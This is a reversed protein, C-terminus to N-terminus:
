SGSPLGSDWTNTTPDFGAEFQNYSKKGSRALKNKPTSIGRIGEHSLAALKGGMICLDLTTQIGVKSDQMASLPPYLQDFGEASVQVTGLHIFQLIAAAERFYNWVEEVQSVDNKGGERNSPARIRGTMDTIVMYPDHAEIIRYVQGANMGHVNVLRIADRRGVIAEYKPVLEGSKALRHLEDFEVHLATQYIRPTIAEATGENILYLLPRDGIWDLEDRLKHAQRAMDIAIQCLLSTKGSDTPMAVAINKGPRAGKLSHELQPFCLFQLGSSDAEAEIYVLPDADAWKAANTREIRENTATVLRRMEAVLDVEEGRQFASVLAAAEGSMRLQELVEMTNKQTTDDIPRDLEDVVQEFIRLQEPTAGPSRLRILTMLTAPEVLLHDPYTQYYLKMWGLVAVTNNDLMADPLIGRYSQFRARTSMVKLLNLELKVVSM